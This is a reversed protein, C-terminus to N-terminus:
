GKPYIGPASSHLHALLDPANKKLSIPIEVQIMQMNACKSM